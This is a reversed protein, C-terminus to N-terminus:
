IWRDTDSLKMRSVRSYLTKLSNRRDTLFVQFQPEPGFSGKYRVEIDVIQVKNIVLCYFLKAATANPEFANIKSPLYKSLPVIRFADKNGAYKGFIKTFIETITKGVKESPKKVELMKGNKYDGEGTILSFHFNTGQLYSTLDIKFITDLFDKFFQENKDFKQTFVSDLEKFYVNPLDSYKGQGRLFESKEKKKEDTFYNDLKKSLEKISANQLERQPTGYIKSVGNIFFKKKADEVKKIESPNLYGILFGSAGMLPKNLLTPEVEGVGKKKLSLGWYHTKRNKIFKVIIDSSNYNKITKPGVNFKKVETAWATGTQWVSQVRADKGIEDLVYNSISLAKALNVYDGNENDVFIGDAGAAGQVRNALVSLHKCIRYLFKQRREDSLQNIKDYDYKTQGLILAATMIEHPDARKGTSGNSLGKSQILIKWTPNAPKSTNGKKDVKLKYAGIRLSLSSSGTFIRKEIEIEYVDETDLTEIFKKRVIDINDNILKEMENILSTRQKKDKIRPRLVVTSANSEFVQDNSTFDIEDVEKDENGGAFSVRWKNLNLSDSSNFIEGVLKKLKEIM